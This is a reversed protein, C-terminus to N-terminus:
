FKMSKSLNKQQWVFRILNKFKLNILKVIFKILDNVHITNNFFGDLNYINISRNLKIDGILRSLWNRVSNKRNSGTTKNFCRSNKQFKKLYIKVNLNVKETYIQIKFELKRLLKKASLIEM